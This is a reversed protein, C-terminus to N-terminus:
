LQPKANPLVGLIDEPERTTPASQPARDTTDDEIGTAPAPDPVALLAGRFHGIRPITGTSLIGRIETRMCIIANRAEVVTAVNM